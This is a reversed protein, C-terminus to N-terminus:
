RILDHHPKAKPSPAPSSTSGILKGDADFVSYGTRKGTQDYKYVIKNVVVDGKGLHTEQELRGATDYKYISKFRFKKDPGFFLGSTFRGADDLQYLTKGLPKGKASTTTATAQHRENDFKYVTRSGDQNITVTVRVADKDNADDPLQARATSLRLLAGACLVVFGLSLPRAIM